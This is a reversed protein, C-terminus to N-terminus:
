ECLVWCLARAQIDLAAITARITEYELPTIGERRTQDDLESIKNRIDIWAKNVVNQAKM